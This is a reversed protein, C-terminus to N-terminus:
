LSDNKASIGHLQEQFFKELAPDQTQNVLSKTQVLLVSRQSKDETIHLKRLLLQVQHYPLANENAITLAEEIHVLALDTQNQKNDIDALLSLNNIKGYACQFGEHYQMATQYLMEAQPWNERRVMINGLETHAYAIYLEDNHEEALSRSQSILSKALEIQDQQIALVGLEFLTRLENHKDGSSRAKALAAEGTKKAAEYDKLATLSKLLFRQATLNDAQQRLLTSFAHSASQYDARYYSEMAQLFNHNATQEYIPTRSANQADDYYELVKVRLQEFLEPVQKAFVIGQDIQYRGVLSYHLQYEMPSGLLKTHLSVVEGLHARMLRSKQEIDVLQFADSRALAMMVDESNLVFYRQENQLTQILTDMGGLRVWTHQKDVLTNEIPLVVIERSPEPKDIHPSKSNLFQYAALGVVILFGLALASFQFLSFRKERNEPAADISPLESVNAIWQYGKRPHTKIVTIPAFLKRIENISQFLVHEQAGASQWVEDLLTQKDIIQEPHQIFHSLLDLTKPRISQEGNESVVRNENILIKFSALQYNM